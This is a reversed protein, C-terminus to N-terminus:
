GKLRADSPLGSLSLIGFVMTCSQLRTGSTKDWVQWSDTAMSLSKVFWDWDGTICFLFIAQWSQSAQHSTCGLCKAWAQRQAPSTSPLQKSDNSAPQSVAEGLWGWWLGRRM